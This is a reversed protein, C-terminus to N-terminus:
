IDAAEWLLSLSSGHLISPFVSPSDSQKCERWTKMSHAPLVKREETMWFYLDLGFKVTNTSTM